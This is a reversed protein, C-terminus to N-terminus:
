RTLEELGGRQIADELQGLKEASLAGARELLDTRDLTVLWSCNIRGPRLLAVRLVGEYPLGESVGVRVEVAKGEIPANAPAVILMGRIKAAEQSLLVIPCREDVRAWWVEGRIM